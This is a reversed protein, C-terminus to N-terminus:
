RFNVKVSIEVMVLYFLVVNCLLIGLFALFLFCLILIFENQYNIKTKMIRKTTHKVM